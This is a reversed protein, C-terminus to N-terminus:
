LLLSESNKFFFGALLFSSFPVVIDDTCLRQQKTADLKTDNISAPSLIVSVNYTEIRHLSYM